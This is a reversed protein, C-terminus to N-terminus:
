SHIMVLVIKFWKCNRQDTFIKASPYFKNMQTQNKSMFENNNTMQFVKQSTQHTIISKKILYYANGYLRYTRSKDTWNEFVTAHSLVLSLRQCSHQVFFSVIFRSKIQIVTIVYISVHNILKESSTRFLRNLKIILHKSNGNWNLM